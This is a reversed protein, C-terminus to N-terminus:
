VNWLKMIKIQKELYLRIHYEAACRGSKLGTRWCQRRNGICTDQVSLSQNCVSSYTQLHLPLYWVSLETVWWSLSKEFPAGHFSLKVLPVAKGGSCKCNHRSWKGLGWIYSNRARFPPYYTNDSIRCSCLKRVDPVLPHSIWAHPAITTDTDTMHTDERLPPNNPSSTDATATRDDWVLAPPNNDASHLSYQPSYSRKLHYIWKRKSSNLFHGEKFNKQVCHIWFTIWLENWQVIIWWFSSM